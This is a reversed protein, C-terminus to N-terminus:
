VIKAGGTVQVEIGTIYEAEDSALFCIANAQDEPRGLRGLPISKIMNDLLDKPITRIIDTDTLSPEVTNVNIKYRALEKALTKTLGIVGAKSASYNSQGVNGFASTSSVNVIKGYRQERMYPVVSRTVFFMGTLNTGIVQNWQETTMKHIMADRAIGANNVLIHITGFKKVVAAVTKNVQVEDFVDCTLAICIDGTPDISNAVNNANEECIDIVAVRAGESALKRAVAEGIGRGAGTVFAVKNDFRGM